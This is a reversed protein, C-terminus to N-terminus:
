LSLEEDQLAGAVDPFFDDDEGARDVVRAEEGSQLDAGLLQEARGFVRSRLYLSGSSLAAYGRSRNGPPAIRNQPIVRPGDIASGIVYSSKALTSSRTALTRSARGCGFASLSKSRWTSTPSAWFCITAPM